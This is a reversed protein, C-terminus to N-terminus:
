MESADLYGSVPSFIEVFGSKTEGITVSTGAKLFEKVKSERNPFTFVPISYKLSSKRKSAERYKGRSRYAELAAPLMQKLAESRKSSNPHTSMFGLVGMDGGGTKGFTDWFKIAEEPNYGAKAMLFLGVQDAELELRKSEPYVFISNYTAGVLAGALAGAQGLGGSRAAIEAASSAVGSIQENMMEQTTPLVHGALVHGLEHALVTALQHDNAAQNFMGTWVFIFNGQTAAANPVKDDELIYINWKANNAEPIANCLNKVIGGVRDYYADNESIIYQQQLQALAGAGQAFESRKSQPMKPIEGVKVPIRQTACGILCLIILSSFVRYM